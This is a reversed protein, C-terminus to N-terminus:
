TKKKQLQRFAAFAAFCAALAILGGLTYEPVVSAPALELPQYEEYESPLYGFDGAFFAKFYVNSGPPVYYDAPIFEYEAIGDGNTQSAFGDASQWDPYESLSYRFVIEEDPVGYSVGSSEEYLLTATLTVTETAAMQHPSFSFDIATAHFNVTLSGSSAESQRYYNPDDYGGEFVAQFSISSGDLIEAVDAWEDPRFDIRAKGDGGTSGDGFNISDVGIWFYFIIQKNELGSSGATLTATVTVSQDVYISGLPPVEITLTTPITIPEEARVQVAFSLCGVLLGALVLLSTITKKKYTKM